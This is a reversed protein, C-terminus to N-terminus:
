KDRCFIAKELADNVLATDILHSIINIPVLSLIKNTHELKSRAMKAKIEHEKIARQQDIM